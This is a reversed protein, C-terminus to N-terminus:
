RVLQEMNGAAQFIPRGLATEALVCGFAWIDVKVTYLNRDLILEPARYWRSTIYTNSPAGESLQKASGFDAIKLKRTHPCVLM